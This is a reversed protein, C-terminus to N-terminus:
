LKLRDIKSANVVEFGGSVKLEKVSSLTGFWHRRGCAPSVFEDVKLQAAAMDLRCLEQGMLLKRCSLAFVCM